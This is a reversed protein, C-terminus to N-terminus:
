PETTLRDFGIPVVEFWSTGPKFYLIDGNLTTFVLMNEANQRSWEGEFRQGDRFLSAPGEGWLQIQISPLGNYSDERIDTDVHMAGVAIVNEACIQQGNLEDLMAEGGQWRCYKGSASNYEWRMDYTITNKDYDVTLANAPTGGAPITDLFALGPSLDPAQSLGKTAALDWFAAPMVYLTHEYARTEQNLRTMYPEKEYGFPSSFNRNAWNAKGMLSYVGGSFGSAVYLADFMPVLEMDILRGSRLSGVIEPAQSYYIATFRTVEGEAYHEWVIDAYSLGSQPRSLPVNSIKVALPLRSLVAPDAVMLGTLPNVGTVYNEPGVPYSEALHNAPASLGPVTGDEASFIPTPTTALGEGPLHPTATPTPAFQPEPACATLGLLTMLIALKFIGRM